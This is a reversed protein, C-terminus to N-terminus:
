AVGAKEAYRTRRERRCTRCDRKRSSPYVYTNLPTLEHGNSCHTQMARASRAVNEAHTVAELHEPNVCSRNRCLHDIELGDPIAGIFASYSLRHASRYGRDRFVIFGYGDSDLSRQWEWCGGTSVLIDRLIQERDTLRIVRGREPTRRPRAEDRV